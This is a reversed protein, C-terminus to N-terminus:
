DILDDIAIQGDIVARVVAQARHSVGFRKKARELTNHATRESIGLLEGIVWDSKGQGALTLCERERPSMLGPEPMVGAGQRKRAGDYAAIAIMLASPINLRDVGDAGPILSCSAAFAGPLHLPITLGDAIGFGAAEDMIRQQDRSLDQRRIADKWFFPTAARRAALLVPDRLVYNCASYRSLWALPYNVMCVAGAPPNLPDVHSCCAVHVFGLGSMEKFLLAKIAAVDLAGAACTELFDLAAKNAPM